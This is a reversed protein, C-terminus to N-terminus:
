ARRLGSFSTIPMELFYPNWRLEDALVVVLIIIAKLKLLPDVHQPFVLIRQKRLHMQLIRAFASRRYM